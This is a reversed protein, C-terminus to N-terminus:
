LLGDDVSVMTLCERGFWVHRHISVRSSKWLFYWKRLDEQGDNPAM